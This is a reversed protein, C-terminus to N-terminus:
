LVIYYSFISLSIILIEPNLSTKKNLWFYIYKACIVHIKYLELSFFYIFLFFSGGTIKFDSSLWVNWVNAWKWGKALFSTKLCIVFSKFSLMLIYWDPFPDLNQKLIIYLLCIIIVHCCDGIILSFQPHSNQLNCFKNRRFQHFSSVSVQSPPQWSTSPWFLSITM